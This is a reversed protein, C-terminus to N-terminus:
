SARAVEDIARRNMEAGVSMAHQLMEFQRMVGILRVAGDNAPANSQEAAGQRVVADPAAGAAQPDTQAFYSTGLKGLAETANAFGTVEVQGLEQGNQRVVGTRDIDVPRSPDVTIPQGNNRTNRLTYGEATALQNKPSIEFSGNRSYVVGTPSNLAFFGKGELALDLPNGTPLITGQSFDTWRKDILPLEDGENASQFLTYFERDAKFGNTGSNALNNALMDLSEMRAKMGSAANILLPDM